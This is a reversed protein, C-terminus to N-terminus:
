RFQEILRDFRSEYVMDYLDLRDPFEAEVLERLRAREIAVDVDPYDDTLILTCVRDVQRALRGIRERRQDPNLMPPVGTVLDGLIRCVEGTPITGGVAM